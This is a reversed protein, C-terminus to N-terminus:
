KEFNVVQEVKKLAEFMKKVPDSGSPFFETKIRIKDPTCFYLKKCKRFLRDSFDTQPVIEGPTGRKKSRM